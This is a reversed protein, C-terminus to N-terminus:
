FKKFGPEMKFDRKEKLIERVKEDFLVKTLNSTKEKDLDDFFERKDDIFVVEEDKHRGCIEEIYAKKSGPTIYVDRCLGPLETREIKDLQFEKDGNTVIYCNERGIRRMAELIGPKIFKPCASMIEEYLDRVQREEAQDPPLVASIFDKLNFPGRTDRSQKYISEVDEKKLGMKEFSAFIHEKFRKTDFLTDDFDFIYKM